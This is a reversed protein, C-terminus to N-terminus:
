SVEQVVIKHFFTTEKSHYSTNVFSLEQVFVGIGTSSRISEEDEVMRTRAATMQCEAPM